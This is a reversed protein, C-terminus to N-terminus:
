LTKLRINEGNVGVCAGQEVLKKSEPHAILWKDRGFLLVGEGEPKIDKESLQTNTGKPLLVFVGFGEEKRVHLPAYHLCLPNLEVIHNAPIYFAKINKSDYVPLPNWCIEKRQGVLVIVDTITYIIESSKHYEVAELSNAHGYCIGMQIPMEGYYNHQFYEKLEKDEELFDIGPEYVVERTSGFKGKVRDVYKDFMGTSIYAGYDRFATSNIDEIEIQRNLAQIKKLTDNM